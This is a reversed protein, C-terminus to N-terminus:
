AQPISEKQNKQKEGEVSKKGQNTSRGPLIRDEIM